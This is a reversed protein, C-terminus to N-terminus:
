FAPSIALTSLRCWLTTGVSGTQWLAAPPSDQSALHPFRNACVQATCFPGTSVGQISPHTVSRSHVPICRVQIVVWRANMVSSAAELDSLVLSFFCTGVQSRILQHRTKFGAVQLSLNTLAHSRLLAFCSVAMATLIAIVACLSIGSTVALAQSCVM